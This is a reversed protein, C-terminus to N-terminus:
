NIKKSKKVSKGLPKKISKQQQYSILTLVTKPPPTWMYNLNFGSALSLTHLVPTHFFSYTFFSLFLIGKSKPLVAYRGSYIMYVPVVLLLIHEAFFNFTEGILVHERLDPFALAAMAGWQLHLYINFFIHPLFSKKNPYLLAFVLLLGSIHCPQLMFWVRNRIIKHILTLLLSSALAMTMARETWTPKKDAKFESLLRYYKTRPQMVYRFLLFTALAYFNALFLLELGHQRPANYWSGFSSQAWDTELPVDASISLVFNEVKVLLPELWSM